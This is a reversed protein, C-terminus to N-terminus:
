SIVVTAQQKVEFPGQLGCYVVKYSFVYTGAKQYTHPSELITYSDTGTVRKRAGTCTVEGGDSGSTTGDGFSYDTSLAYDTFATDAPLDQGEARPSLVTGSVTVQM